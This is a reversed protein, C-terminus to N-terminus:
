QISEYLNATISDYLSGCTGCHNRYWVLSYPMDYETSGETLYTAKLKEVMFNDQGSGFEIPLHFPGSGRFSHAITTVKESEYPFLDGSLNNLRCNM